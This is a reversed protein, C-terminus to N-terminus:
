QCVRPRPKGAAAHRPVRRATRGIVGSNRHGPREHARGNGAREVAEDAAPGAAVPKARRGIAAVGSRGSAGAHVSFRRPLRHHATAPRQNGGHRRRRPCQRPGIERRGIPRPLQDFYAVDLNTGQRVTGRQPTLQGLLLRLLTTKGSGNPGIVGVRDGRMIITSLDRIVPRDGYGFTVGKAEIVLRGSRQAEHVEMRVEGPQDRRAARVSRLEELACVRGENRTRRAQIGTRIWVEERALKKDFESQQRAEAELATEKRQLYTEYGCAWSSLRGRDLEVIRTALKRLLARDHTVFLITGRYRLLYDELWGIAQVDLHNTPEDLLLIEPNRVLARALLARRKMGASLQPWPPM